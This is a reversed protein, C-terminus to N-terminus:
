VANERRVHFFHRNATYIFTLFLIGTATNILIIEEQTFTLVFADIWSVAKVLFPLLCATLHWACLRLLRGLSVIGAIVQSPINLLGDALRLSWDPMLSELLLYVALLLLYAFPLLQVWRTVRRLIYVLYSAAGKPDPSDM